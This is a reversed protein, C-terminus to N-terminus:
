QPGRSWDSNTLPPSACMPRPRRVALVHGVLLPAVPDEHAVVGLPQEGLAPVVGGAAPAPEVRQAVGGGVLEEGDVLDALQAAGVSGTTAAPM